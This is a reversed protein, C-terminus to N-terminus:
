GVERKKTKEYVRHNIKWLGWGIVYAMGLIIVTWLVSMYVPQEYVYLFPYPGYMLKTINGVTSVLAYCLTPILALKAMTEGVAEQRSDVVLLSIVALLPCLFHQYKLPGEFFIRYYGVIGGQPALVCLVVLFTISLCCVGSFKLKKIWKPVTEGKMARIQYYMDFMCAVAMLINSDTTYYTLMVITNEHIEMYSGLWGFIVLLVDLICGLICLKRQLNKQSSM